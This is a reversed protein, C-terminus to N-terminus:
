IPNNRLSQPQTQRVNSCEHGFWCAHCVCEEVETFIDHIFGDSVETQLLSGIPRKGIRGAALVCLVQVHNSAASGIGGGILGFLPLFSLFAIARGFWHGIMWVYLVGLALVLGAILAM